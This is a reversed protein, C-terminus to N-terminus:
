QEDSACQQIWEGDKYYAYGYFWVLEDNQNQLFHENPMKESINKNISFCWGFAKLETNSIVALESKIGFISIIGADTSEYDTHTSNLINETIQMVNNQMDVVTNDQLLIEHHKGFVTFQVAASPQSILSLFILSMLKIKM